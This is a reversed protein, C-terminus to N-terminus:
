LYIKHSFYKFEFSQGKCGKLEDNWENFENCYTFSPGDIVFGLDCEIELRAEDVM